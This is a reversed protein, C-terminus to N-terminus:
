KFEGLTTHLPKELLGYQAQMASGTAARKELLALFEAPDPQEGHAQREMFDLMKDGTDDFRTTLRKISAAFQHNPSNLDSM